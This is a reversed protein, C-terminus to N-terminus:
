SLRRSVRPSLGNDVCARKAGNHFGNITTTTIPWRSDDAVGDM